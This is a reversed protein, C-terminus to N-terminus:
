TNIFHNGEIEKNNEMGKATRWGKPCRDSVYQGRELWEGFGAIPNRYTAVSDTLM